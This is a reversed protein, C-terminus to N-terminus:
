NGRRGSAPTECLAAGGKCLSYSRGQALPTPPTAPTKGDAGVGVAYWGRGPFPLRKRAAARRAARKGEAIGERRGRVFARDEALRYGEARGDAYVRDLRLLAPAAVPKPQAVATRPVGGGTTGAVSYATFASVAAILITLLGWVLPRDATTGRTGL